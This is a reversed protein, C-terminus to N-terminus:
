DVRAVTLLRVERAGAKRLALACARATAGTTVVDDVLVVVRGFVQTPRRVAFAGAVNLRRAAASLGPQALTEKRRVLAAPAVRLGARRGIAEALVESQNFGRERRRRPHLPVPVLVGGTSLTGLSGGDAVIAEALRAAVRRRGRFKLEHILVRLGGVYPGVSFGREFPSLGRRCRGCVATAGWLPTGCACMPGQHRPLATWCGDCLPGRSPHDLLSLCQPCASPFVVALVPDVAHRMASAVLRGNWPSAGTASSDM